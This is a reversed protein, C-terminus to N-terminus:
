ARTRTAVLTAFRADRYPARAALPSESGGQVGIASPADHAQIRRTNVSTDGTTNGQYRAHLKGTAHSM